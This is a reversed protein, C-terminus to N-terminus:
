RYRGNRIPYRSPLSDDQAVAASAATLVLLIIALFCILLITWM